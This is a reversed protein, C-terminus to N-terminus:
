ATYELKLRREGIVWLEEGGRGGSVNRRDGTLFLRRLFLVSVFHFIIFDIFFLKSYSLVMLCFLALSFACSVCVCEYVCVCVYVSMCVCVYVSMCVCWVCQLWMFVCFRFGYHMHLLGIHSFSYFSRIVNYSLSGGFFRCQWKRNAM